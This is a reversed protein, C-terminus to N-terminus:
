DYYITCHRIKYKEKYRQLSLSLKTTIFQVIDYKTNKRIVSCHFHYNLQLLNYLSTDENRRGWWLIMATKLGIPFGIFHSESLLNNGHTHM